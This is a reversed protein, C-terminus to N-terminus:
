FKSTLGITAVNSSAETMAISYGADFRAGKTVQWQGGIQLKGTTKIQCSSGFYEAVINFSETLVKEVAASYVFMDDCPSNAADGVVIYGANLDFKAGLYRKTLLLVAGYDTFGSGLSPVPSGNTLKLDGRLALGEDAGLKILKLKAHIVADATRQIDSTNYPLELMLEMDPSVGRRLLFVFGSSVTNDNKQRIINFGTETEYKGHELTSYDDTVLPRAAYSPMVFFFFILLPLYKKLM